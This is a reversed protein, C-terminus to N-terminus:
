ITTSYNLRAEFNEQGFVFANNEEKLLIDVKTPLDAQIFLDILRNILDQRTGNLYNMLSYSDQLPGIEIAIGPNNDYCVNGSLANYGLISQGLGPTKQDPNALPPM